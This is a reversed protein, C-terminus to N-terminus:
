STNLPVDNPLLTGTQHNIQDTNNLITLTKGDTEPLKQEFGQLLIWVNFYNKPNLNRVFQVNFLDFRATNNKTPTWNYSFSGTLNEKDINTKNL